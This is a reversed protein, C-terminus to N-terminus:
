DHLEGISKAVIKHSPQTVDKVYFLEEGYIYYLALPEDAPTIFKVSLGYENDVHMRVEHMLQDRSKQILNGKREEMDAAHSSLLERVNHSDKLAKFLINVIDIYEDSNVTPMVENDYVFHQLFDADDPFMISLIYHRGWVTSEPWGGADHIVYQRTKHSRICNHNMIVHCFKREWAAWLAAPITVEKKLSDPRLFHVDGLM